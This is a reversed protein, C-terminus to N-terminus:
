FLFDLLLVIVAWGALGLMIGVALMGVNRWYDSRPSKPPLAPNLAEWQSPEEVQSNSIAKYHTSTLSLYDCLERARSYTLNKQLLVPAQELLRRTEERPLGLKSLGVAAAEANAVKLVVVAYDPYDKPFRPDQLPYGCGPCTM